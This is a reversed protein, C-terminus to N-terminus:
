SQLKSELRDAVRKLTLKAGRLATNYRRPFRELLDYCNDDLDEIATGDIIARHALTNRLKRFTEIRKFLAKSLTPFRGSAALKKLIRIKQIFGIEDLVANYFEILKGNRAFSYLIIYDIYSELSAFDRIIRGVVQNSRLLSEVTRAM